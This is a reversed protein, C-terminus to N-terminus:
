LSVIFCPFPASKGHFTRKAAVLVALDNIGAVRFVTQADAAATLAHIALAPKSCIFIHLGQGDDHDLPVTGALCEVPILDEVAHDTGTFLPLFPEDETINLEALTETSVESYDWDGYKKIRLKSIDIKKVTQPIM